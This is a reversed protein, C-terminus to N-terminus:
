DKEVIKLHKNIGTISFKLDDNYKQLAQIHKEKAECLLQSEILQKKLLEIEENEPNSIENKVAKILKATQKLTYLSGQIEENFQDTDMSYIMQDHITELSELVDWNKIYEILSEVSKLNKM